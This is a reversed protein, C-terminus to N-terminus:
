CSLRLSVSAAESSRITAATIVADTDAPIDTAPITVRRIIIRRRATIIDAPIIRIPLIIRRIPLIPRTRLILRRPDRPIPVQLDAAPRCKQVGKM